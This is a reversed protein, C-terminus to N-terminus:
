LCFSTLESAFVSMQSGDYFRVIYFDAHGYRASAAGYYVLSVFQGASRFYATKYMRMKAESQEMTNGQRLGARRWHLSLMGIGRARPM